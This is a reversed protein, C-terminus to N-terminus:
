VQTIYTLAFHNFSLLPLSVYDHKRMISIGCLQVLLNLWAIQFNCLNSMNWGVIHNELFAQSSSIGATADSSSSLINDIIHVVGNTTGLDSM